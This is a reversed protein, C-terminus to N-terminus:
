DRYVQAITYRRKSVSKIAVQGPLLNRLENPHINFREVRSISGKESFGTGYDVQHTVDTARHTGFQAAIIESDEAEIRHVILLGAGLCAKRLSVTVPVYQTSIVTPMLAQRAQLLLDALQDAENLAAFEDFVALVPFLQEGSALQRLRHHAVQKLDQALVRGMLEVDESSALTSLAVYTVSPQALAADWDLSPQARFVDGFKGELLAGLRRQMGARGSSGTGKMEDLDLLRKSTRDDDDAIRHALKPMGRIGLADYLAELTVAEGAAQLGRVIIPVAELAVNKYIEADPGFTFAGVLKNAVSAADGTCPNYGLSDAADPDVLNFPLAYRAALARAVGGLEGAKADVIVVGYGDALAGDAIRALTTTKGSGSAGPLFVHAALDAPLDLDLPGNTEADVGLRVRGPPHEVSSYLRSRQPRPLTPQKHGSIARWRRKDLRHDRRVQAHVSRSKLRAALVAGEFWAPGGMAEACFSRLALRVDVAPLHAQPLLHSLLDRWPWGWILFSHLALLLAALLAAAMLRRIPSPRQLWFWATFAAAGVLVGPNLLAACGLAVALVAALEQIAHETPGQVAPAAHSEIALRAV